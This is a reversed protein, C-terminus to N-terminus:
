ISMLADCRKDLWIGFAEATNSKKYDAKVSSAWSTFDDSPFMEEVDEWRGRLLLHNSDIEEVKKAITDMKIAYSTTDDQSAELKSILAKMSAIIDSVEGNVKVSGDESMKASLGEASFSAISKKNDKKASKGKAFKDLAKISLSLDSDGDCLAIFQGVIEDDLRGVRAYVYATKSSATWMSLSECVDAINCKIGRERMIDKAEITKLWDMGNAVLKSLSLNREFDTVNSTTTTKFAKVLQSTQLGKIAINNTLLATKITNLNSM